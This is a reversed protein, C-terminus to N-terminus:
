WAAAVAWRLLDKVEVRNRPVEHRVGMVDFIGRCADSVQSSSDINDIGPQRHASNTRKALRRTAAQSLWTQRPRPKARM